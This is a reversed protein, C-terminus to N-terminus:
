VFRRCCGVFQKPTNSWKTFNASLPNLDTKSSKNSNNNKNILQNITKKTKLFLKQIAYIIFKFIHLQVKIYRIVM